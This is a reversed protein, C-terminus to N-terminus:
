NENEEGGTKESIDVSSGSSQVKEVGAFVRAGFSLKLTRRVSAPIIIRGREDVTAAFFLINSATSASIGPNM